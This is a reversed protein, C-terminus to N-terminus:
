PALPRGFPTKGLWEKLFKEAIDCAGLFIGEPHAQAQTVLNTAGERASQSAKQQTLAGALAGTEIETSAAVSPAVSETALTAAHAMEACIPGGMCVFDPLVVTGKRQLTVLARTTFALSHLSGLVKTKLKEAVLHDVAGIKSGVLFVDADLLEEPLGAWGAEGADKKDGAGAGGGADTNGEVGRAVSNGAGLYKTMAQGHEAFAQALEQTSFGQACTAAGTTTTVGVVKGDLLAIEEAAALALNNFGELVVTRGELNRIATNVGAVAGVGVLYEWVCMKVGAINTEQFLGAPRPDYRRLEQLDAESVGKGVDPLFRGQAVLETIEQTFASLIETHQCAQQAAGGAGTGATGTSAGATGTNIGAAAGLRKMGYTAFTYTASRALEQTTSQLVKPASRVWGGASLGSTAGSTAGRDPAAGRAPTEGQAPTARQTTTRTVVEPITGQTAWAEADQEEQLDFVVFADSKLRRIAM